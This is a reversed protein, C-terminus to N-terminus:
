AGASGGPPWRREAARLVALALSMWLTALLLGGIVDSPMHWDLILLSASVGLVYLGGLCAVLGRWRRPAVLVASLVLALVATAHGSPWSAAGLVTGGVSAHPHATLPKLLEASLPAFGMVAIVAAATRLRDQALAFAVLAVGWLVFLLPDLLHLLFRAIPRVVPGNLLTLEHLLVADRYHTAPVHAALVWVAAMAAACLAAAGLPWALGPSDPRARSRAAPYARASM